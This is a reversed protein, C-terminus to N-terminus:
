SRTDVVVTKKKVSVSASAPGETETDYNAGVGSVSVVCKDSTLKIKASTSEGKDLSSKGLNSVVTGGSVSMSINSVFYNGAAKVTVTFTGGESVQSASASISLGGAANTDLKASGLMLVFAILFCFVRKITKSM